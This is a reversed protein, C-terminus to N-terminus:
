DFINVVELLFFCKVVIQVTAFFCQVIDNGIFNGVRLFSSPLSIFHLFYINAKFHKVFIIFTIIFADESM